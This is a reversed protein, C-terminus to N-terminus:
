WLRSSDRSPARMIQACSECDGGSACFRFVGPRSIVWGHEEEDGEAEDTRCRRASGAGRTRQKQSPGTREECDGRYEPRGHVGMVADDPGQLRDEREDEDM